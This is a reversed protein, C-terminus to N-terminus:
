LGYLALLGCGGVTALNLLEVFILWDFSVSLILGRGGREDADHCRIQYHRIRFLFYSEEINILLINPKDLSFM